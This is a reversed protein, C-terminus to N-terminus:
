MGTATSTRWMRRDRQQGGAVHGTFSDPAWLIILRVANHSCARMPQAIAGTQSNFFLLVLGEDQFRGRFRGIFTAGCLHSDILRKDTAWGRNRESSRAM